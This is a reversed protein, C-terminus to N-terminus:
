SPEDKRTDIKGTVAASILAQRYERLLEIHHRAKEIPTTLRPLAQKIHEFIAIQEDMPPLTILVERLHSAKIGIATSGSSRSYLEAQGAQSLIYYKLYENIMLETNVRFLIIRQALAINTEMIQAAEGLPAETTMVVDGLEPLGRAMVEDYEDECIYEQSLDFDIVGNKINRATILPVGDMVKEPTRGRYDVFKEIVRRIQLVGWHDPVDGLWEIGSPKLKVTPDLGKTVAQTILATRKEQLLKILRQKKEILQDIEETKKDLFSSIAYQELLPPSAIKIQSMVNNMLKPNIDYRVYGSTSINLEYSFYRYDSVTPHKSKLTGCVNTCNFRGSRAFVTGANAGDTTWTIYDGDFDYSSLYGLIGNNETQSSYVPYNGPDDLMDENSIVRGRGLQFIIWVPKVEWHEPVDGLWEIGSPKYKPYPKM